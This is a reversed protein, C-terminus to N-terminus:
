PLLLFFPVPQRYGQFKVFSGKPFSLLNPFQSISCADEYTDSRQGVKLTENRYDMNCYPLTSFEKKDKLHQVSKLFNTVPRYYGVTEATGNMRECCEQIM